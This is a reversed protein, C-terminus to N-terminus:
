KDIIGSLKIYKLESNGFGPVEVINIDIGHPLKRRLEKLIENISNEALSILKSNQHIEGQTM